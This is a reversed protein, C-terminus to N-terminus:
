VSDVTVSATPDTATHAGGDATDTENAATSPAPALADLESIAACFCRVPM